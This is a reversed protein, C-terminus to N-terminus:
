YEYKSWWRKAEEKELEDGFHHRYFNATKSAWGDSCRKDRARYQSLLANNADINYNREACSGNVYPKIEDYCASYSDRYSNWPPYWEEYLNSPASDDKENAGDKSPEADFDESKTWDYKHKGRPIKGFYSSIILFDALLSVILVAITLNDSLLIVVIIIVFTLIVFSINM